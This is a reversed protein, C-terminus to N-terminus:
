FDHGSTKGDSGVAKVVPIERIFQTDQTILQFKRSPAKGDAFSGIRSVSEGPELFVPFTWYLSTDGQPASFKLGIQVRTAVDDDTNEIEFELRPQPVGDVLKVEVSALDEGEQEWVRQCAQRVLAVSESSLGPSLKSLLCDDYSMGFQASKKEGTLRNLQDCGSLFLAAFVAVLTPFIRISVGQIRDESM